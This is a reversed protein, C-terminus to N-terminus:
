EVTIKYDKMAQFVHITRAAGDALLWNKKGGHQFYYDVTTSRAWNIRNSHTTAWPWNQAHWFTGIVLTKDIQRISGIKNCPAYGRSSDFSMLDGNMKSYSAGTIDAGGPTYSRCRYGSGRGAERVVNDLPCTLITGRANGKKLYSSEDKALYPIFQRDWVVMEGSANTTMLPMIWDKHDITYSTFCTGMQKLNSLCVINGAKRKASNLAPLLMGALIAIIAIVILLEILTFDGTLRSASLMRKRMFVNKQQEKLM